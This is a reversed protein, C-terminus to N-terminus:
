MKVKGKYRGVKGEYCGERWGLREKMGVKGGDWGERWGLRGKM